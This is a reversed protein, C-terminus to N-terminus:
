AAKSVEPVSNLSKLFIDKAEKYRMFDQAAQEKLPKAEDESLAKWRRSVIRAMEGYLIAVTQHEKDVNKKEQRFFLNYASLPRNPMGKIKKKRGRTEKKQFRSASQPFLPPTVRENKIATFEYKTQLETPSTATQSSPAPAISFTPRSATAHQLLGLAGDCVGFAEKQGSNNGEKNSASWDSVNIRTDVQKAPAVVSSNKATLTAEATSCTELTPTELYRQFGSEFRQMTFYNRKAEENNRRAEELNKRGHQPLNVCMHQQHDQLDQQLHSANCSNKTHGNANNYTTWSTLRAAESAAELSVAPAHQMDESEWTDFEGEAVIGHDHDDSFSFFSGLSGLSVLDSDLNAADTVAGAPGASVPRESRPEEIIGPSDGGFFDDTTQSSNSSPETLFEAFREIVRLNEEILKEGAILGNQCDGQEVIVVSNSSSVCHHYTYEPQGYEAPNHHNPLM